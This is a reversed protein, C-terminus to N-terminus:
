KLRRFFSKNLIKRQEAKGSEVWNYVTKESLIDNEYMFQTIDVYRKNETTVIM